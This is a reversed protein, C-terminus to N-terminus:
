LLKGRASEVVPMRDLPAFRLAADGTGQPGIRMSLARTPLSIDGRDAALVAAVRGRSPLSEPYLAFLCGMACNRKVLGCFRTGESAGHASRSWGVVVTCVPAALAFVATPVDKKNELVVEDVEDVCDLPLLRQRVPASGRRSNKLSPHLLHQRVASVLFGAEHPPSEHTGWLGQPILGASTGTAASIKAAAREFALRIRGDGIASCPSLRLM